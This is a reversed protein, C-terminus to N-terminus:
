EAEEELAGLEEVLRALGRLSAAIQEYIEKAPRAPLNITQEPDNVARIPQKRTPRVETTVTTPDLKNTNM